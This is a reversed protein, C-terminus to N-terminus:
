GSNILRTIHLWFSKCRRNHGSAHSVRPDGQANVSPSTRAIMYACGTTSAITSQRRTTDENKKELLLRCVLNTLSQLESTHEESRLHANDELVSSLARALSPQYDVVRGHDFEVGPQVVLAIVRTWADHLGAAAFAEEHPDSSRRTPFSPLTPPSRSRSFFSPPLRSH